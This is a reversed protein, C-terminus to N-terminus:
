QQDAKIEPEPMREGGQRQECLPPWNKRAFFIKGAGHGAYAIFHRFVNLQASDREWPQALAPHIQKGDRDARKREISKVMLSRIAEIWDQMPQLIMSEVLCQM